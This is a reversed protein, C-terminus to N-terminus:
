MRNDQVFMDPKSCSGALHLVLQAITEVEADIEMRKRNEFLIEAGGSFECNIKM